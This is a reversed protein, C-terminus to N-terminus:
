AFFKEEGKFFRILFGSGMINRIKIKCISKSAQLLAKDNQILDSGKQISENKRSDCIGM